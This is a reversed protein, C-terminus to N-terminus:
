PPLDMQGASPFSRSAARISQYNDNENFNLPMSKSFYDKFKFYFSRFKRNPNEALFFEIIFSKLFNNSLLGLKHIKLFIM